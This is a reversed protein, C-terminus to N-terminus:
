AYIIVAIEKPITINSLTMQSKSYIVLSGNTAGDALAFNVAKKSSGIKVANQAYIANAGDVRLITGKVASWLSVNNAQIQQNDTFTLPYGNLDVRSANKDYDFVYKDSRTYTKITTELEM